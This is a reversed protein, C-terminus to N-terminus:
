GVRRSRALVERALAALEPWRRAVDRGRGGGGPLDECLALSCCLVGVERDFGLRVPVDLSRLGHHDVLRIVHRERNLAVRVEIGDREMAACLDLFTPAMAAPRGAGPPGSADRDGAAEQWVLSAEADPGEAEV